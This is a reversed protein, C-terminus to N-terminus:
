ARVLMTEHPALARHLVYFPIALLCIAAAALLGGEPRGAYDAVMGCLAPTFTGGLYYITYFLGMGVARNEPRASMTGVAMVVGPQISGVVGLLVAWLVPSGTMATGTMGVSLALSGILFINFGGFRAALGGGALTGPVNGWTVITMVLATAGLGYGRLSLSSPLYSAFGSFGATYVTWIGGAILVLLCERGSPLAFRSPVAVARAPTRYSAAFLLLALGAPVVDTLLAGALGYGALVPPLVLQALGLGIPFACIPISIAIMFRRPGAFLDAIVKGQLVSLAVAGLGAIARGAGIGFETPAWVSFCAGGTMLALGSGLIWRDGFRRALLGLPLAAFVGALNYAGILGGLQAYSLGFRGTLDTAVTAVTQFQYGFAIRALSLAALIIWPQLHM